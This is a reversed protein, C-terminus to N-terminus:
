TDPPLIIDGLNTVAGPEVIIGRIEHYRYESGPPAGPPIYVVVIRYTGALLNSIVFNGNMDPSATTAFNEADNYIKLIAYSPAPILKGSIGGYNYVPITKTGSTTEGSNAVQLNEKSCSIIIASAILIIFIRLFTKNKM